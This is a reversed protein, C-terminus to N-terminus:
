EDVYIFSKGKDLYPFRKNTHFGKWFYINVSARIGPVIIFCLQKNLHQTNLDYLPEM